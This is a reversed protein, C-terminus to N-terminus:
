FKKYLSNLIAQFEQNSIYKDIIGKLNSDNQYASLIEIENPTLSPENYGLLETITIGFIECIKPFLDVDPICVKKRWRNVSTDTVGLMKAFGQNTYEKHTNLLTDIKSCIANKIDSLESNM